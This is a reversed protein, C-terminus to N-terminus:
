CTKKGGFDFTLELEGFPAQMLVGLVTEGQHEFVTLLPTFSNWAIKLNM